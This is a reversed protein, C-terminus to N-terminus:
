LYSAIIPHIEPLLLQTSTSWKLYLRRQDGPFYPQSIGDIFCKIGRSSDSMGNIASLLSRLRYRNWGSNDDSECSASILARFIDHNLVSNDNKCRLARRILHLGRESLHHVEVGGSRQLRVRGLTIYVNGTDILNMDLADEEIFRAVILASVPDCAPFCLRGAADYQLFVSSMPFQRTLGLDRKAM